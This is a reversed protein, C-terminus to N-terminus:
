GFVQVALGGAAVSTVTTTASSFTTTTLHGPGDQGELLLFGGDELLLHFGDETLAIWAPAAM